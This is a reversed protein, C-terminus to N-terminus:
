LSAFGLLFPAKAVAVIEEESTLENLVNFVFLFSQRHLLFCGQSGLVQIATIQAKVLIYIRRPFICM